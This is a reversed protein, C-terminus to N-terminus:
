YWREPLKKLDNDVVAIFNLMRLAIKRSNYAWVQLMFHRPGEGMKSRKSKATYYGEGLVEMRINKKTLHGDPLM